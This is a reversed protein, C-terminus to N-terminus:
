RSYFPNLEIVTELGDEKVLREANEIGRFWGFSIKRIGPPLRSIITKFADFDEVDMHITHLFPHHQFALSALAVAADVGFEYMRLDLTELRTQGLLPALVTWKDHHFKCNSINLTKVRSLVLAEFFAVLTVLKAYHFKARCNLTEVNSQPLLAILQELCSESVRTVSLSLHRMHLTCDTLDFLQPLTCCDFALTDLTSCSFITRFIDAAQKRLALSTDQVVDFNSLEFHTVPQRQFWRALSSLHDITLLLDDEKDKGAEPCILSRRYHLCWSTLKLAGAVFDFLAVLNDDEQDIALTLEVLSTAFPAVAQLFNAVHTSFVSMRDMGFQTWEKEQYEVYVGDTSCSVLGVWKVTVLPRLNSKLWQVHAATVDGACFIEVHDCQQVIAELQAYESKWLDEFWAASFRMHPWVHIRHMYRSFHWLSELPGRRETTGLADLFIFFTTSDSIFGAIKVVVDLPLSPSPKSKKM